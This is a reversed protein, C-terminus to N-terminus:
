TRVPETKSPAPPNQHEKKQYRLFWRLTPIGVTLMVTLLTGIRLSVGMEGDIVVAEADFDVGIRLRPDPIDTLQELEPMIAWMGGHLCGYLEAASAPDERGGLTVSVRLPHIRIGRGIRKLARKLPPALTQIADRIDATTPKKVSKKVKTNGSQGTEKKAKTASTTKETKPLIHLRIMGIRINLSLSGDKMVALVGARTLCLLLLLAALTGFILLWTM